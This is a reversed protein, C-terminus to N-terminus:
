KGVGVASVDDDPHFFVAVADSQLHDADSDLSQVRVKQTDLVLDAVAQLRAQGAKWIWVTASGPSRAARTTRM